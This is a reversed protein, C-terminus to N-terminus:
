GEGGVGEVARPFAPAMMETLRESADRTKRYKVYAWVASALSDLHTDIRALLRLMEDGECTKEITSSLAPLEAQSVTSTATKPSRYAVLGFQQRASAVVSATIRTDAGAAVAQIQLHEAVRADNTESYTLDGCVARYIRSLADGGFDTLWHIAPTKM